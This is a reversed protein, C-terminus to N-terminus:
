TRFRLAYQRRMRLAVVHVAATVRQRASIPHPTRYQSRDARYEAATHFRATRCGGGLRGCSGRGREVDQPFGDGDIDM